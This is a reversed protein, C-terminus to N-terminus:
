AHSAGELAIFHPKRAEFAAVYRFGIDKLLEYVHPINSGVAEPFHADSGVTIIEGGLDRYDSVLRIYDEEIRPSWNKTNVEIGKGQEIIRTLIERIQDRYRDLSVDQGDRDRMYRMPYPIHGFIDFKGWEVSLRMTHFYDDLHTYCIEPSDYHYDYFDLRGAEVSLNHVSCIVFDLGPEAQVREGCAYDTPVNGIEIGSRIQVKDGWAERALRQQERVPAWDFHPNYSGDIDLIDYHDTFCIEAIGHDVAGKAMDVRHSDSDRSISSHMHSDAYYM